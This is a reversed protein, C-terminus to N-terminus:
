EEVEEQAVVEEMTEPEEEVIEEEYDEYEDGFGIFSKFKDFAGTAMVKM